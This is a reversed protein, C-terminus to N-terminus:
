LRRSCIQQKHYGTFNSFKGIGFHEDRMTHLGITAESLLSKLEAFAINLKFDVYREIKLDEALKRLNDVRM